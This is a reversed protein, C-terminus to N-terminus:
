PRNAAAVAAAADVIGAGLPWDLRVPFPRATEQLLTRMQATTRPRASISQVLAVVGAVHPAAMSTGNMTAYGEGTAARAGTAVTSLVGSGPAAVDITEGHNSFGSRSGQQTTSGVVIAGGCNGPSYTGADENSNGAALVIISGRQAAVNFADRYTLSCRQPSTSGLSMNIVDAPHDNVPAGAVAAGAAWMVGDAIDSISGGCTGLVRVPVIGAAHAVGAIGGANNTVAAAIGAVHSGHWSSPRARWTQTCQRDTTWDGPDTPDNDRGDGDNATTFSGRSGPDAAIFDFGPLVNADLDSHAVIGSDVVAIVAGQGTSTDWAAEARIGGNGTGLGYQEGFRPDNPRMAPLVRQDLEVYEVDPDTGIQRMLTEAELRSLRRDATVVDAGTAIRRQHRLGLRIGRTAAGNAAISANSLARQLLRPNTRAGSGDRYKIIFRVYESQDELSALNVRENAAAPLFACISASIATAIARNLLTSITRSQM